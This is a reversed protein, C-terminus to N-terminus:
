LIRNWWNKVAFAIVTEFHSLYIWLSRLFKPLVYLKTQPRWCREECTWWASSSIIHVFDLSVAVIRDLNKPWGNENEREREKANSNKRQIRFINRTVFETRWPAKMKGLFCSCVFESQHKWIVDGFDTRCVCYEICKLPLKLVYSLSKAFLIKKDNM